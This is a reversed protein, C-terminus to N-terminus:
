VVRLKPAKYEKELLRDTDLIIDKVEFVFDFCEKAIPGKVMLFDSIQILENKKMQNVDFTNMKKIEYKQKFLEMVETNVKLFAFSDVRSEGVSEIYFIEDRNDDSFVSSPNKVAQSLEALNIINEESRFSNDNNFIFKTKKIKLM